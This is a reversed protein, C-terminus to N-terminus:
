LGEAGFCNTMELRPTANQLTVKKEGSHEEGKTEVEMERVVGGGGRGTRVTM